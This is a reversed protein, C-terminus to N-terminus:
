VALQKLGRRKAKIKKMDEKTKNKHCDTCLIQLNDKNWMDGDLAVAIIHDVDFRVEFEYDSPKNGYEERLDYYLGHEILYDDNMIQQYKEELENLKQIRLSELRQKFNPIALIKKKWEQLAKEFRPKSDDPTVNCKVCKKGREELIDDKFVSWTITRKYWEQQHKKSCYVRMHKDFESRPKGCWCKKLKLNELEEESYDSKSIERSM